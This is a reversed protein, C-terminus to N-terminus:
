FFDFSVEYRSNVNFNHDFNYSMRNSQIVEERGGFNHTWVQPEIFKNSNSPHFALASFEFTKGEQIKAKSLNIKPTSSVFIVPWEEIPKKSFFLNLDEYPINLTKLLKQQINESNFLQDTNETLSLNICEPCEEEFAKLLGSWDDNTMVVELFEHEPLSNKIFQYLATSPTNLAPPKYKDESGDILPSEFYKFKNEYPKVAVLTRQFSFPERALDSRNPSHVKTPLLAPNLDTQIEVKDSLYYKSYFLSHTM